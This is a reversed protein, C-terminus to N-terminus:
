APGESGNAAITIGLFIGQHVTKHTNGDIELEEPKQDGIHIIKFKKLNTRIKWKKEYSNINKIEKDLNRKLQEKHMATVIQTVDDAFTINTTNKKEVPDPMDAVYVNYLTPSLASGQPVGAKLHFEEAAGDVTLIQATRGVLFSHIL